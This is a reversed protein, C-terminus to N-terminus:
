QTDQSLFYRIVHIRRSRWLLLSHFDTFVEASMDSEQRCLSVVKLIVASIFSCYICRLRVTKAGSFEQETCTGDIMAQRM